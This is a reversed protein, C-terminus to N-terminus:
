GQDSDPNERRASMRAHRYPGPSAVALYRTVCGVRLNEEPPVGLTRAIRTINGEVTKVAIGLEAAIQANSRGVAMLRLIRVQTPSLGPLPGGGHLADLVEEAVLVHGAATAVIADRLATRDSVQRKLLYSTGAIASAAADDVIWPDAVSTLFVVPMGPMRSRLTRAVDFGSMDTGLDVDLLAVDAAAPWDELAAAPDTFTGIVEFIDDALAIGLLDLWLPEDDVIGIAIM